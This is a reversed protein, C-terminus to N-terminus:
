RRMTAVPVCVRVSLTLIRAIQGFFSLKPPAQLADSVGTIRYIEPCNGRDFQVLDSM